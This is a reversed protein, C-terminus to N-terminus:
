EASVAAHLHLRGRNDVTTQHLKQIVQSNGIWYVNDKAPFTFICGTTDSKRLFSVEFDSGDLKM